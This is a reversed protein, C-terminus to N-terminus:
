NQDGKEKPNDPNEEFLTIGATAFGIGKRFSNQSPAVSLSGSIQYVNIATNINHIPPETEPHTHSNKDGPDAMLQLALVATTLAQAAKGLEYLDDKVPEEKM